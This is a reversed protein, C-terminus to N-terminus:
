EDNFKIPKAPVGVATCNSPLSKFVVAGAGVITNEGIELQNIIKAGTGVYVSEKINVEGSINVAPMFSCFNNIITDHGVTCALNLIIHNKLTVNTTIINGECIINGVGISNGFNSFFISPHILNPFKIYKNKSIKSVINRKTKPNGIAVAINVREAWEMLIETNGLVPYGNITIGKTIGDDVFGIFNFSQNQRNIAEVLSLVERGFGGAGIIIINEM